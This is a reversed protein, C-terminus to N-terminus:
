NTLLNLNTKLTHVCFTDKVSTLLNIEIAFLLCNKNVYVIEIDIYFM